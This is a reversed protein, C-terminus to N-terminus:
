RLLTISGTRYSNDSSIRTGDCFTIRLEYIFVDPNVLRGKHIGDWGDAQNLSEFVLEGWRNFIMLHMKDIGNGYVHFIDNVGDGNPSFANPVYISTLCTNPDLTDTRVVILTGANATCGNDDTAVLTYDSTFAPYAVPSMCNDCSLSQSPSWLYTLSDSNSIATLTISDGIIITDQPTHIYLEILIPTNVCTSGECSDTTCVDRDDCTLPTGPLCGLLPDCTEMGNCVDGDDCTMPTGQQCGVLPDCIELGNCVDGDDCTIPTGPLCGLLPDCTEMGNCVDGDDCTIPTGPLCGLLPDCTELGNCVDGDDCDPLSYVTAIDKLTIGNLIYTTTDAPAVILISDLSITDNPQNGTSWWYFSDSHAYLYATDGECILTDGTIYLVPNNSSVVSIDDIYYYAGGYSGGTPVSLTNTNANDFFNGIFIHTYPATAQFSGSIITWNQDDTIVANSYIHAFNIGANTTPNTSFLVGLNDCGVSSIETLSVKMSVDYWTGVILANILSAGSIENYSNGHWAVLAIYGDGDAPVQSGAYNTSIGFDLGTGCFATNFYDPTENVNDWSICQNASGATFVCSGAFTEFSNNPVLNQSFCLVSIALFTCSLCLRKYFLLVTASFNM